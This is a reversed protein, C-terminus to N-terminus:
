KSFWVLIVNVVACSQSHAKSLLFFFLQTVQPKKWQRLPKLAVSSPEAVSFRLKHM